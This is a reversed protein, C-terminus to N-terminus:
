DKENGGMQKATDALVKGLGGIVRSMYKLKAEFYIDIIRSIFLEAIVVVGIVATAILLVTQLTTM